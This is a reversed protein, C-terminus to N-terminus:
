FLRTSFRFHVGEDQLNNDASVPVDELSSGIYLEASYRSKSWLLGAGVSLLTDADDDGDSSDRNRGVGYDVFPAIQWVGSDSNKFTYRYEASLFVAQDRVLQNKRYGRVSGAGGLAFRELPLLLENAFQADARLLLQGSGELYSRVFQAQGLWAIFESDPLDDDHVTSGFADIGFNFSSRLAIVQDADRRSYDQWVRLATVRSDGDEEGASFSFPEGLLTNSNDRVTLDVGVRTSGQLSRRLPHSLSLGFSVSDSEIDIDDLPEEVVTSNTTAFDISLRTDRATVPVSYATSLNYRGPSLNVAVNASDGFGTPNLYTGALTLQEAGVSPSGHNDATLNLLWPSSPTVNLKLSTQGAEPLPLLQGDMRDILPDDLLLQFSEQLNESNFPEGAGLRVRKAVYSPKLRGTGTVEIKDLRGEVIKYTLEGDEVKQDPLLAGSNIYGQEIYAQTINVRLQELDSFRLPRNLYPESISELDSDTMATNGEFLVRKLTIKPQVPPRITLKKAPENVPENVLPERIKTEQAPDAESGPQILAEDSSKVPPPTQEAAPETRRIVGRSTESFTVEASNDNGLATQSIFGTVVVAPVAICRIIIKM